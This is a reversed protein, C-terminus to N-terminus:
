SRRGVGVRRGPILLIAAAGAFSGVLLPLGIALEPLWGNWSSRFPLSTFEVLVGNTSQHWISAGILGTIGAFGWGLRISTHDTIKGRTRGIRVAAAAALAVACFIAVAILGAHALGYISGSPQAPNRGSVIEVIGRGLQWTGPYAAANFMVVVAVDQGPLLYIASSMGSGGGEYFVMSADGNRAFIWGSGFDYGPALADRVAPQWRKADANAALDALQLSAFSALDPANMFLLGAPAMAAPMDDAPIRKMRGLSERHLQLGRRAAASADFTASAINAPRFIREDVLVNFPKNGVTEAVLGLLIYDANSYAWGRTPDAELPASALTRAFAEAQADFMGPGHFARQAMPGLGSQMRLLDRVTVNAAEKPLKLWPLYGTVDRDLEVLGERVLDHILAATVTKGVSGTGFLTGSTVPTAHDDLGERGYYGLHVVRGERRVVVAAGPVGLREIGAAVYTDIRPDTEAAVAGRFSLLALCVILLCRM